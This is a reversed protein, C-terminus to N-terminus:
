SRLRIIYEPILIRRYSILVKHEKIGNKSTSYFKNNRYGTVHACNDKTSRWIVIDNNQLSKLKYPTIIHTLSLDKIVNDINQGIYKKYKYAINNFFSDVIDTCYM